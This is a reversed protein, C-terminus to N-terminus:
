LLFDINSVSVAFPQMGRCTLLLSIIKTMASRKGNTRLLEDFSEELNIADVV